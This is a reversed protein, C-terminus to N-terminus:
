QRSPPWGAVAGVAHLRQMTEVDLDDRALAEKIAPQAISPLKALAFTASKVMAEDKAAILASILLDAVRPDNKLESPVAITLHEFVEVNPATKVLDLYAQLGPTGSKSLAVIIQRREEIRNAKTEFATKLANAVRQSRDTNEQVRITAMALDVESQATELDRLAADLMAPDRDGAKSLTRSAMQRAEADDSELLSRLKAKVDDPLTESGQLIHALNGSFRDDKSRLLAEQVFPVVGEGQYVLAASTTAQLSPDQTRELLALLGPALEQPHPPAFGALNALNAELSIDAPEHLLKALTPVLEPPLEPVRRQFKSQALITALLYSTEIRGAEDQAAVFRRTLDPIAADGLRVVEQAALMFDQETEAAHMKAFASDVVESADQSFGPVAWLLVSALLGARIATRKQPMM